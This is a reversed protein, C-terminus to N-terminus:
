NLWSCLPTAVTAELPERGHEGVGEPWADRYPTAQGALFWACLVVTDVVFHTATM